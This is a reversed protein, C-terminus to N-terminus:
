RHDATLPDDTTMPPTSLNESHWEDGELVFGVHSARQFEDGNWVIVQLEM